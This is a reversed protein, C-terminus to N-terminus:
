WSYAPLEMSMFKEVEQKDFDNNNNDIFGLQSDKILEKKIKHEFKTVLNKEEICAIIFNKLKKVNLSSLAFKNIHKLFNNDKAIELLKEYNDITGIQEITPLNKM